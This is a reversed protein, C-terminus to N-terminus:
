GAPYKALRTALVFGLDGVAGATGYADRRAADRAVDGRVFEAEGPRAVGDAALRADRLGTETETVLRKAGQRPHGGFTPGTQQFPCTSLYVGPCSARTSLSGSGVGSCAATMAAGSPGSATMAPAPDPLL